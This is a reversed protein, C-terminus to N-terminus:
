ADIRYGDAQIPPVLCSYICVVCDSLAVGNESCAAGTVVAKAMTMKAKEKRVSTTTSGAFNILESTTTNAATTVTVSIQDSTGAVSTTSEVLDDSLPLLVSRSM